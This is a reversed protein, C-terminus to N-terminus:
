RSCRRLKYGGESRCSGRYARKATAIKPASSVNATKKNILKVSHRMSPFMVERPLWRRHFLPPSRRSCLPTTPPLCVVGDSGGDRWTANRGDLSMNMKKGWEKTILQAAHALHAKASGEARFSGNHQHEPLPRLSEPLLRPSKIFPELQNTIPSKVGQEPKVADRYLSRPALALHYKHQTKATLLM